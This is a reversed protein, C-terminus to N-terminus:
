NTRRSAEEAVKSRLNVFRVRRLPAAFKPLLPDVYGAEAMEALAAGRAPLSSKLLVLEGAKLITAVRAAITDSTAEWCHPLKVGPCHPEHSQLFELPDLVALNGGGVWDAADDLGTVLRAAPLVAAAVRATASMAAISAWHAAEESLSNHRDIERLADVLAGGGVLLLNPAPPQRDLWRSFAAPLGAMTLLSGGLKIVRRPATM